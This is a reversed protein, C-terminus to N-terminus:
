WPVRVERLARVPVGPPVTTADFDALAGHAAFGARVREVYADWVVATGARRGAACRERAEDLGAYAWVPGECDVAGTVDVRAYNRERVDLAALDAPFVMGEVRAGARPRIDLFAVYLEPREGTARDLFYRYGPLTRRNDMAVGWCREWGQLTCRRGHADALLSGYAFVFAAAPM